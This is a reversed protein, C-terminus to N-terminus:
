CSLLVAYILGPFYGALTLVIDLLIYIWGAMGKKMFVYLPPCVILIIYRFLTPKICKVQKGGCKKHKRSNKLGFFDDTFGLKNFIAILIGKVLDIVSHLVLTLATFLGFIIDRLFVEPDFISIAMKILQPIMVIMKFFLDRMTIMAFGLIIIPTIMATM